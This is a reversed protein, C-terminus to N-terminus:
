RYCTAAYSDIAAFHWRYHCLSDFAFHWQYFSRNEDTKAEVDNENKIFL